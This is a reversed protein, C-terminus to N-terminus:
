AAKKRLMGVLPPLLFYAAIGGVVWPLATGIAGRAVTSITTPHTADTTPGVPNENPDFRGGGTPFEDRTRTVSAQGSQWSQVTGHVSQSYPTMSVASWDGSLENLGDQVASRVREQLAAWNQTTYPTDDWAYMWAATTEFSGLQTKRTVRPSPGVWYGLVRNRSPTYKTFALRIAASGPASSEFYSRETASVIVAPM